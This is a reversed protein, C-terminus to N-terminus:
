AELCMLACVQSRQAYGCSLTYAYCTRRGILFTSGASSSPAAAATRVGRQGQQRAIKETSAPAPQQPEERKEGAGAGAAPNTDSVGVCAAKRCEWSQAEEQKGGQEELEEQSSEDLLLIPVQGQEQGQGQGQEQGPEALTLPLPLKRQGLAMRAKKHGPDIRSQMPM